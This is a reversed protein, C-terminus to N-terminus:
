SSGGGTTVNWWSAGPDTPIIANDINKPPELYTRTMNLPRLVAQKLSDEFSRSTMAEIAYSLIQFAINSYVPTNSAATIPHLSQLGQFFAPSSTLRYDILYTMIWGLVVKEQALYYSLQRGAPPSKALQYQQYASRIRSLLM